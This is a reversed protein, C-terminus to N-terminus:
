KKWIGKYVKGKELHYSTKGKKFFVTKSTHGTVRAGSPVRKQRKWEFM